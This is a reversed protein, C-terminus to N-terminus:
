DQEFEAGYKAGPYGTPCLIGQPGFFKGNHHLNASVNQYLNQRNPLGPDEYQAQCARCHSEGGYLQMSRNLNTLDGPLNCIQDLNVHDSKDRISSIDNIRRSVNTDLIDALIPKMQVLVDSIVDYMIAMSTSNQVKESVLLLLKVFAHYTERNAFFERLTTNRHKLITHIIQCLSERIENENLTQKLEAILTSILIGANTQIVNNLSEENDSARVVQKRTLAVPLDTRRQVNPQQRDRPNYTFM